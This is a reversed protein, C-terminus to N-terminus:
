AYEYEIIARMEANTKVQSQLDSTLVRRFCSPNLTFRREFFSSVNVNFEMKIHSLVMIFVYNCHFVIIQISLYIKQM